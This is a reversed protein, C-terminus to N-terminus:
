AQKYRREAARRALFLDSPPKCTVRRPAPPPLAAAIRPETLPLPMDFVEQYEPASMMRCAERVSTIAQSVSVDFWEGLLQYRAGILAHAVRELELRHGWAIPWQYELSLKRPNGNQMQDLRRRLDSTIGIKCPGTLSEAIVYIFQRM